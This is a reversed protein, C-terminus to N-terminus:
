SVVTSILSNKYPNGISLSYLVYNQALLSSKMIIRNLFAQPFAPM